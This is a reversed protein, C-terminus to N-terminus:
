ILAVMLSDSKDRKVLSCRSHNSKKILSDSERECFVLSKSLFFYIKWINQCNKGKKHGFAYQEWREKCFLSRWEKCFLSTLSENKKVLSYSKREKAWLWFILLKSLFGIFSNGVRTKSGFDFFNLMEGIAGLPVAFLMCVCLNSSFNQFQGVTGKVTTYM